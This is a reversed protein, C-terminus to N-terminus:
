LIEKSTHDIKEQLTQILEKQGKIQEKATENEEQYHSIKGETSTRDDEVQYPLQDTLKKILGENLEIGAELTEIQKRADKQENRYGKVKYALAHQVYRTDKLKKTVHDEHIYYILDEPKQMDVKPDIEQPIITLRMAVYGEPVHRLEVVLYDDSIKKLKVQISQFDGKATKVEARYNLNTLEKLVSQDEDDVTFECVLAQADAKEKAVMTMEKSNLFPNTSVEDPVNIKKHTYIPSLVICLGLIVFIRLWRMYKQRKNFHTRIASKKKM